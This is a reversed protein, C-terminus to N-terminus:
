SRYRVLDEYSFMGIAVTFAINELSNMINILVNPAAYKPWKSQSVHNSTVLVVVSAAACALVLVLAGFGIWPFRNKVGPAWKPDKPAQQKNVSDDSLTSVPRAKEIAIDKEM